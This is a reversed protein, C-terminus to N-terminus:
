PKGQGNRGGRKTPKQAQHRGSSFKSALDKGLINKQKEEAQKQQFLELLRQPTTQSNPKAKTM